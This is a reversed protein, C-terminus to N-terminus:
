GDARQRDRSASRDNGRSLFARLHQLICVPDCRHTASHYTQFPFSAIYRGTLDMQPKTDKRHLHALLFLFDRPTVMSSTPRSSFPAFSIEASRYVPRAVPTKHQPGFPLPVTFCIKELRTCVLPNTICFPRIICRSSHRCCFAPFIQQRPGRNQSFSMNSFKVATSFITSRDIFRNRSRPSTIFRRM